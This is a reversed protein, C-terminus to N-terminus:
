TWLWVETDTLPGALSAHGGACAALLSWWRASSLIFPGPPYHAKSCARSFLRRYAWPHANLKAPACVQTLLRTLWVSIPVRRSSM